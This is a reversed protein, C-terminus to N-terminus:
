PIIVVVTSQCSMGCADFRAFIQVIGTGEPYFAPLVWQISSDCGSSGGTANGLDDFIASEGEEACPCGCDIRLTGYIQQTGPDYFAELSLSCVCGGGSSSSSDSDDSGSSESSGSSSSESSGSSESSYSSSPSGSSESSSSSSSSSSDESGSSSSSSSSSDPPEGSSSSSSDGSSSSSMSSGSSESSGSSSSESSGSSSSSSSGACVLDCMEPCVTCRTLVVGGASVRLCVDPLCNSCEASGLGAWIPRGIGYAPDGCTVATPNTVTFDPTGSMGAPCEHIFIDYVVDEGEAMDLICQPIAAWGFFLTGIFMCNPPDPPEQDPPTCESLAACVGFEIDSCCCGQKCLGGCPDCDQIFKGPM